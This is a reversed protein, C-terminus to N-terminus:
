GLLEQDEFYIKFPSTKPLSALKRFRWCEAVFGPPSHFRLVINGLIQGLAMLAYLCRDLFALSLSDWEYDSPQLKTFNWKKSAFAFFYGHVFARKLYTFLGNSYYCYATAQRTCGMAGEPLSRVKLTLDVDEHIRLSPSFGQVVKLVRTKYICAATNIHGAGFNM